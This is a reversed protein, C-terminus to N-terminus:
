RLCNQFQCPITRHAALRLAPPDRELLRPFAPPGPVVPFRLPLPPLHWLCVTRVVVFCAAMRSQPWMTISEALSVVYQYSCLKAGLNSVSASLSLKLKKKNTVFVPNASGHFMLNIQYPRVLSHFLLQYQPTSFLGHM